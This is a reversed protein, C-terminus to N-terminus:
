WPDKGPCGPMDLPCTPTPAIPSEPHVAPGSSAESIGQIVMSGGTVTRRWGAGGGGRGGGGSSYYYGFAITLVGNYGTGSFTATISTVVTATRGNSTVTGYTPTFTPGISATGLSSLDNQFLIFGTGEYYGTTHVDLWFAGSPSVSGEATVPVGYCYLPETAFGCNSSGISYTQAVAPTVLALIALILITISAKM